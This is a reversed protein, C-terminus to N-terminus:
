VSYAATAFTLVWRGKGIRGFTRGIKDGVEGSRGASEIAFQFFRRQEAKTLSEFSRGSFEDALIRADVEALSRNTKKITEVWKRGM